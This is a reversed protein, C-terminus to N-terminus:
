QLQHDFYSIVEELAKRTPHGAQDVFDLTLISHGKGPLEHFIIRQEADRNFVEDLAKFKKATCLVDEQFRGCHMPGVADLRDKIKEVEDSSLHINSQAFIPLSPQSSYGALVDENAMLSIAFNGTLCMGIVAIGPVKYKRKTRSCLASLYEVMPSSQNKAFLKFTKRMCFVRITNGILSTKGLPGFLHPVVVRYGREVFIDALRLTEQGIGPLEQILVLVRSGKGRIYLDHRAKFGNSLTHSFHDKEYQSIPTPDNM